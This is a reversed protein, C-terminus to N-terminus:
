VSIAHETQQPVIRIPDKKIYIEIIKKKKQFKVDEFSNSLHVISFRLDDFKIEMLFAIVLYTTPKGTVM